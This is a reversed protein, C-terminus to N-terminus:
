WRKDIKKKSPDGGGGSSEASRKEPSEKTAKDRAATASALAAAGAEGGFWYFYGLAALVALVAIIALIVWPTWNTTEDTTSKVEGTEPSPEPNPTVSPTASPAPAPLRRITQTVPVVVPAPTATAATFEAYGGVNGFADVPAVSVVYMTKPLLNILTVTPDCPLGNCISVATGYAGDQTRYKVLYNSAGAVAPWSLTMTTETATAQIGAVTSTFDIPNVVTVAPGVNGAADMLRLWVKGYLNDGLQIVPFSGNAAVTVPTGPVLKTMAADSYVYLMTNAEAAAPNGALTDQTGPKNASLLVKTVDVALPAINDHTVTVMAPLSVAATDAIGVVSLTNMMNPSLFVSASFSGAVVPVSQMFVGNRMIDVSTVPDPTTQVTGSVMVSPQNTISPVANLVPTAISGVVDAFVVYNGTVDAMSSRINAAPAANGDVDFAKVTFTYRGAPLSMIASFTGASITAPVAPLDLVSPTMRRIGIVVSTVEASITGTISPQSAVTTSFSPAITLATPTAVEVNKTGPTGYETLGSKFNVGRTMSSRWSSVLDGSLPMGLSDYSRAMTSAPTSSTPAVGFFPIAGTGDLRGLMDVATSTTVDVLYYRTAVTPLALTAAQVYRTDTPDAPATPLNVATTAASKAGFVLYKGSALKSTAGLTSGDITLVTTCNLGATCGPASQDSELRFSSTSFDITAGSMNAIEFWQDTSLGTSGGWNIESLVVSPGAAHAVTPPIIAGFLQFVLAGAIGFSLLRRTSRMTSMTTHNALQYPNGRKVYRSRALRSGM